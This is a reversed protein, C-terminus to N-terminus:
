LNTEVKVRKKKILYTFGTRFIFPWFRYNFLIQYVLEKQNDVDGENTFLANMKPTDILHFIREIDREKLSNLYYRVHKMVFLNKNMEKKWLKTYQSLFKASTNNEKISKSAIKGAIRAAIGGLIVGGGTTPKTQGAADGVVLANDTHTRRISSSLPIAGSTRKEIKANSLKDKAVPHKKIFKELYKGSPSFSSGLGVKATDENIPIIWSFFGPAYEKAQYLEVYRSDIDKINTMKFMSAYIIRDRSPFPLGIQKNLRPFRGEALIVIRSSIKNLSSKKGLQLIISNANKTLGVAKSSTQINVGKEEALLSLHQNFKVRDVVCATESNKTVTVLAGSPSYLHAGIIKKNQIVNSPLSQLQLKKLGDISLLGACHEHHGITEKSELVLVDAGNEKASLAALLGASGGGVVAIDSAELSM